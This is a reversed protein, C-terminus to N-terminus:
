KVSSRVDGSRVLPPLTLGLDALGDRLMETPIEAHPGLTEEYHLVDAALGVAVAKVRMDRHQTADRLHANFSAMIERWVVQDIASGPNVQTLFPRSWCLM